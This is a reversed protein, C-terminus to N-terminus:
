HANQGEKERSLYFLLVSFITSISFVLILYFSVTTMHNKLFVQYMFSKSNGDKLFDWNRIYTYKQKLGSVRELDAVEVKPPIASTTVAGLTNVGISYIAVLLFIALYAVKKPIDTLFLAIFISLISYSPILYRSGFAWGGWPDGWMSYLILNIAVIATLTPLFRINKKLALFFGIIGFILIPAFYIIGRDKAFLHIYMGNLINRSQFYSLGGSQNEPPTSKEEEYKESRPYDVPKGSQDIEEATTVGSNGLTKLPGGYSRANFWFFFLLPILASLFSFLYIHKLKVKILKKQKEILIFRALAAIAIPAMLFLNPYDVPIAAACLFWIAALTWFSSSSILLYFASLILFTSIHHQYLNVAYSFAPTAFLFVLSAITATIESAGLKIATKRILYANAIAFFAITAFTGFQAAGFAKGILYGPIAIFSVAPAFLSVYNGNIYGVDPTAFRALDVPFFVSRNEVISYTLAYRGREPSLEFPGDERWDPSLLQDGDPNGPLGRVALVLILFSFLLILHVIYKKM